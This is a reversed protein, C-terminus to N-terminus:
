LNRARGVVRHMAPASVGGRDAYTRPDAAGFTAFLLRWFQNRPHAYYQAHQLSVAGPM